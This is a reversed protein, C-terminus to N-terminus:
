QMLSVPVIGVEDLRRKAEAFADLLQWAQEAGIHTGYSSTGLCLVSPVPSQGSLTRFRM